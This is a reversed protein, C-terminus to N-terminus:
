SSNANAQVNLRLEYDSAVLNKAPGGHASNAGHSNAELDSEFHAQPAHHTCKRNGNRHM